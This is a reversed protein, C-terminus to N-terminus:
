TTTEERALYAEGIHYFKRPIFNVFCVQNSRAASRPPSRLFRHRKRNCSTAVDVAWKSSAMYRIHASITCKRGQPKSSTSLAVSAISHIMGVVLQM